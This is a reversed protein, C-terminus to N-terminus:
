HLFVERPQARLRTIRNYLRCDSRTRHGADEKRKLHEYGDNKEARKKRNKVVKAHHLLNHQQKGLNHGLRHINRAGLRQRVGRVNEYTLGLCRQAHPREDFSHSSRLEHRDHNAPKRIRCASDQACVNQHQDAVKGINRRM